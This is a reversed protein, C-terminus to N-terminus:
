ILQVGSREHRAIDCLTNSRPPAPARQVSDGVDITTASCILMSDLGIWEAPSAQPRVFPLNDGAAVGVWSGAVHDKDKGEDGENSAPLTVNWGFWFYHQHSTASSFLHSEGACVDYNHDHSLCGESRAGGHEDAEGALENHLFHVHGDGDHLHAREGGAHAHRIPEPMIVSFAVVAALTMRLGTKFPEVMMMGTMLPVELGKM